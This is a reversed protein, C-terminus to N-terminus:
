EDDNVWSPRYRAPKAPKGVHAMVKIGLHEEAWRKAEPLSEIGLKQQILDYADGGAGCSWCKTRGEELNVSMSPSHDDHIMCKIKRPSWGTHSLYSTDIEWLNLLRELDPKIMEAM